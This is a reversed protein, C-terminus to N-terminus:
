NYIYVFKINYFDLMMINGTSLEKLLVYNIGVGVLYGYRSEITDSGILQEIRVYKGIQTRLFGTMYQLTEYDLINQYGPPLLPNDPVNFTPAVPLVNPGTTGFASLDGMEVQTGLLPSPISQIGPAQQAMSGDPMANGSSNFYDSSMSSMNTDDYYGNVSTGYPEAVQSAAMFNTNGQNPIGPINLNSPMLNNMSNCQCNAM